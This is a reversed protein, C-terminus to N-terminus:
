GRLHEVIHAFMVVATPVWLVVFGAWSVLRAEPQKEWLHPWFDMIIVRLGNIAHYIVAAALAIELLGFVPNKYLAVFFIYASPAFYVTSTDVIHLLLFLVVGLGSIRHFLWEYQGFRGRYRTIEVVSRLGHSIM